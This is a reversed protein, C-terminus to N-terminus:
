KEDPGKFIEDQCYQCLGSIVFERKSLEDKFHKDPESIITPCIMCEFPIISIGALFEKRAEQTKEKLNM